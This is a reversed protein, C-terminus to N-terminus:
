CSKRGCACHISGGDVVAAVRPGQARSVNSPGRPASSRLANKKSGQSPLLRGTGSADHTFSWGLVQSVGPGVGTLGPFPFDGAVSGAPDARVCAVAPRSPVRGM